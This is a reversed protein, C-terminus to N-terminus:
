LTAGQCALQEIGELAGMPLGWHGGPVQCERPNIRILGGHLQRAVRESCFRVTPIATGAGLEIVACHVRDKELGALWARFRDDQADTRGGIWADDGFMLINPRALGGCHPCRPLPERALFAEEDVLVVESRAEWVADCCPECCQFHHISGHCEVMQGSPFGAAQFQGDVNSTFVFFGRPKATAWTLLRGFGAHPVTARYLNLRQGYFAWALRPHEKFWRPNALEEFALGMRAAAPYARWFGERGRFNPLGSDVGMGAGATILLAEAAKVTQAAAVWGQDPRMTNAM